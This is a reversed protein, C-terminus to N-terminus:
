DSIPSLCFISSCVLLLFYIIKRLSSLTIVDNQLKDAIGNLTILLDLAAGSDERVRSSVLAVKLAKLEKALKSVVIEGVTKLYGLESPFADSYVDVDYECEELIAPHWFIFILVSQQSRDNCEAFALLQDPALFDLHPDVAPRHALTASRLNDLFGECTTQIATKLMNM